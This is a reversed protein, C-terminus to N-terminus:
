ISSGQVSDSSPSLSLKDYLLDLRTILAKSASAAGYLREIDVAARQGRQRAEDPNNFVHQMLEAAHDIDAEAWVGGQEYPYYSEEREVLRYKVPYSNSQTMFDTNGSYDTAIVPKGLQMAEAISLGFGESRHLSVYVDSARYLDTLKDRELYDEILIGSVSELMGILKQRHEPVRNLNNVKAVLATSDSHSGFARRYAEFLAWPNKREIVSLADFAFFFIFKDAPLGLQERSTNSTSPLQLYLPMKVVPVSSVLALNSQIFDSAVWIEQFYDFRDRWRAPFELVEWFWFGINIKGAFVEPGFQDFSAFVQDANVHLLNIPYPYGQPLHLTSRDQKRSLDSDSQISVMSVPYNQSNLARVTMRAAEGVGSESELYGIVNVGKASTNGNSNLSYSSDVPKDPRYSPLSPSLSRLEGTRMVDGVFLERLWLRTEQSVLTRLKDRVGISDLMKLLSFYLGSVLSRRIPYQRTAPRIATKPANRMSRTIPRVFHDDLNLREANEIFWHAYAERHVGIADPYVRQLSGQREYIEAALRSLYPWGEGVPENLWDRFSNPQNVEYPNGWVKVPDAQERWIVRALDPVAVGDLFFNYACKQNRVEQYGNGILVDAYGEFLEVTEPPLDGLVYRDQHRSVAYKNEPSFGSFHFFKLRSGNAFWAKEGKTVTRNKLNWYAVNYGPDRSIHVDSFLGPVLDVWRQDTFLGKEIEVGAYKALKRKWWKLFSFTGETRSLGIFGLNYCGAQLIQLEGPLRDDDLTDLLHPTLVISADDLTTWLEDLESYIIIDPDFYCLKDIRHQNFLYELYYPKIATALELVTYQFSFSEYRPIGLDIDRVLTFDENGLHLSSDIEDVLLVFASSDPNHELFSQVLSRAHALYNKAVTTCIATHTM